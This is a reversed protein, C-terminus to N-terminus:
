AAKGIEGAVQRATGALTITTFGNFLLSFGVLTGVVWLGSAPLEWGIMCAFLASVIGGTLMWGWGRVPKIKFAVIVRMIGDLFLSMAVAFTLTVLGIGPRIVFYFGTGAAILGWLLTLTGAGFSDAMFAGVIRAGGGLLFAMGVMVTVALGAMLPGAIALVGGVIEVIGFVILWGANRKAADLWGQVKGEM